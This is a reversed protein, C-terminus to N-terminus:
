KVELIKKEAVGAISGISVFEDENLTIEIVMKSTKEDLHIEVRSDTKLNQLYLRNSRRYAVIQSKDPSKDNFKNVSIFQFM